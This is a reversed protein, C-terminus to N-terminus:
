SGIKAYGVFAQTQSDRIEVFVGLHLKNAADRYFLSVPKTDPLQELEIEGSQTYVPPQHNDVMQREYNVFFPYKM